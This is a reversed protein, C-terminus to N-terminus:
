ELMLKFTKQFQGAQVKLLYLGKPQQHLRIPLENLTQILTPAFNESWVKKMSMDYVTLSVTQGVAQRGPILFWEGDSPNPFVKWAQEDFVVSEGTVADFRVINAFGSLGGQNRARIRYFVVSLPLPVFGVDVFSTTNAASAGATTYDTLRQSSREILFGTENNSRDNWNLVFRRLDRSFTVRLNEPATPPSPLTTTTAINSFESLGTGNVAAVRFSHTTGARLNPIAVTRLDPALFDFDLRNFSGQGVAMDVVFGILLPPTASPFAWQLRITDTAVVTATLTEPSPPPEQGPVSQPSSFPSSGSQNFAAVRYFYATGPDLETDEFHQTNSTVRGVETYGGEFQLSREIIFGAENFTNDLWEIRNATPQSLVTLQSPAFPPSIIQSSLLDARNPSNELVTRMRRKQDNTFLNMCADRTYDMYNQFMDPLDTEEPLDVCTNPNDPDPFVCPLAVDDRNRSTTPTDECFDDQNCGGVAGWPHLLALFHGIEHTLTRGQDYRNDNLSPFEGFRRSGVVRTNIVVGDREDPTNDVPVGPNGSLRPWVAYGLTGGTLPVVWINLYRKPDWFTGRKLENEVQNITWNDREGRFRRIGPEELRQGDPALEALRFEIRTDASVPLFVPPTNIRDPNSRRYDENLVNLQAIVQAAPINNGQGVEEGKHVVHFIVPLVYVPEPGRSNKRASRHMADHLWAEFDMLSGLAPLRRRLAADVEMTACREESQAWVM